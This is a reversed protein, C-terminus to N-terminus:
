FPSQNIAVFFQKYLAALAAPDIGSHYVMKNVAATLTMLRNSRTLCRAEYRAFARAPKYYNTALCQALIFANELGLSFGIAMTPLAACCADGVLTVNDKSWTPMPKLENLKSAIINEDPTQEIMKLLDPHYAEFQALVSAKDTLENRSSAAFWYKQQSERNTTYTVIRSKDGSFVYLGADAITGTRFDVIGRCCTVGSDTYTQGPFIHERVTSYIGDAGIIVDAVASSGDEFQLGGGAMARLKKGCQLDAPAVQELLLNLIDKRHVGAMPAIAHPSIDEM